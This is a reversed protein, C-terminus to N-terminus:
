PVGCITPDKKKVGRQVLQVSVYKTCAQHFHASPQNYVLDIEHLNINMFTLSHYEHIASNM